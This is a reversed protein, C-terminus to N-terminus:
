LTLFINWLFLFKMLIGNTKLFKNLLSVSYNLTSLFNLQTLFFKLQMHFSNLQTLFFNRQTLYFIKLQINYLFNYSGKLYFLFNVIRLILCTESREERLCLFIIDYMIKINWFRRACSM